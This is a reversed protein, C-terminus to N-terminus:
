QKEESSACKIINIIEQNISALNALDKVCVIKPTNSCKEEGHNALVSKCKIFALLHLGFVTNMEKTVALAKARGM